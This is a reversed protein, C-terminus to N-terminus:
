LDIEFGGLEQGTPRRPADGDLVGQGTELGGAGGPHLDHGHRRRMLGGFQVAGVEDHRMKLADPRRIDAAQDKLLNIIFLFRAAVGTESRVASTTLKRRKAATM